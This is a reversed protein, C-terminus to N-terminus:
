ERIVEAAIRPERGAEILTGTVTVVDGATIDDRTIKQGAATLFKTNYNTELIWTFDSSDWTMGVKLTGRSVSLVTAGRLLTLGNNAIHVERMPATDSAPAQVAGAASLYVKDTSARPSASAVRQALAQVTGFYLFVASLVAFAISAAAAILIKRSYLATHILPLM